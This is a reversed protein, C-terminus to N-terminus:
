VPNGHSLSSLDLYQPTGTLHIRAMLSMMLFDWVGRSDRSVTVTAPVGIWTSSM